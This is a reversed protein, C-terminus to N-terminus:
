RRLYIVGVQYDLIHRAPTITFNSTILGRAGEFPGTGGTVAWTATGQQVGDEGAPHICGMGVTAFDLRNTEGGFAISGREEFAGEGHPIVRSVLEALATGTEQLRSRIEGHTGLGTTITCGHARAFIRLGGETEDPTGKGEFRMVYVVPEM